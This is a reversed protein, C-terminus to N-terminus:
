LVLRIGKRVTEHCCVVHFTCEVTLQLLEGCVAESNRFQNSYETDVSVGQSICCDSEPLDAALRIRGFDSTLLCTTLYIHICFPTWSFALNWCVLVRAAAAHGCRRKHKRGATCKRWGRRTACM